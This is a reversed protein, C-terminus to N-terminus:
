DEYVGLLQLHYVIANRKGLLYDRSEDSTYVAHNLKEKTYHLELKMQQIAFDIRIQTKYLDQMENSM